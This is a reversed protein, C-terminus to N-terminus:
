WWYMINPVASNGMHPRMKNSNRWNVAGSLYTVNAGQLGASVPPIAPDAEVWGSRTHTYKSSYTKDPMTNRDALLVLDPDDSLKNPSEWATPSTLFESSDLGGMYLLGTNGKYGNEWYGGAITKSIYVGNVNVVQLYNPCNTVEWDGIYPEFELAYSKDIQIVTHAGNSTEGNLLKGDNDGGYCFLSTAFQKQNNACVIRKAQEKAARLTPLLLAALIAIIAIVVLLEILTFRVKKM